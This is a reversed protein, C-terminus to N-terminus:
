KVLQGEINFVKGNKLIYMKGNQIFKLVKDASTVEEVATPADNVPDVLNILRMRAPAQNGLPTQGNLDLIARFPALNSATTNAFHAGSAVLGYMNEQNAFETTLTYTGKLARTRDNKSNQVIPTNSFTVDLTAASNCYILCAQQTNMHAFKLESFWATKVNNKIEYGQYTLVNYNDFLTKGPDFSTTVDALAFPFCCSNFKSGLKRSYSGSVAIFPVPTYFDCYYMETTNTPDRLVLKQCVYSNVGGNNYKVLININDADQIQGAYAQDVIMIANYYTGRTEKFQDVTQNTTETVNENYSYYVTGKVEAAESSALEYKFNSFSSAAIEIYKGYTSNGLIDYTGISAGWETATTAKHYVAAKTAKVNKDVPLRFSIASQIDTVETEVGNVVYVPKVEFEMGKVYTVGEAAYAKDAVTTAATLQVRVYDKESTAPVTAHDAVYNYYTTVNKNDLTGDIAIKADGTPAPSMISKVTQPDQPDSEVLSYIGNEEDFVVIHEDDPSSVNGTYSQGNINLTVGLPLTIDEDSSNQLTITCVTAWENEVDSAAAVVALKLNGYYNTSDKTCRSKYVDYANADDGINEEVASKASYTKGTEASTYLTEDNKDVFRPSLHGNNFYTYYYDVNDYFNITDGEADPAFYNSCTVKAVITNGTKSVVKYPYLESTELDPNPIAFYGDAVYPSPDESYIGAQINWTRTPFKWLYWKKFIHGYVLSNDGIVTYKNHHTESNDYTDESFVAQSAKGKAKANIKCNEMTIEVGEQKIPFTGFGDTSGSWYNPCEFTTNKAYLVTGEGGGPGENGNKSDSHYFVVGCYGELYSDKIELNTLNNIKIPYGSTGVKISCNNKVVFKTVPAATYVGSVNTGSPAIVDISDLTLNGVQGTVDIVRGRYSASCTKDNKESAIYDNSTRPNEITLYKLTVDIPTTGGNNIVLTAYHNNPAAATGTNRCSWGSLKYKNQGDITTTKSVNWFATGGNSAYAIDATLKIYGGNGLATIFDAETGVLYPDSETGSGTVEAWATTGLMLGSALLLFSFFKKKM